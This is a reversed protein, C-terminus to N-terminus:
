WRLAWPGLLAGVTATILMGLTYWALVFEPAMEPCHLTYGLTGIAGALLGAAFGGLRPRTPALGRMARLVAILAPASLLAVWGPCSRWTRGFLRGLRLGEPESASTLAALMTMALLVLALNLVARRSSTAPRSMRGALDAAAMVMALVYAWKIALGTGAEAFGAYLGLTGVALAASAALGLGMAVALRAAVPRSPAPGARSALFDIFQETRM